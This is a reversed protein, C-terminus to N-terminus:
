SCSVQQNGCLRIAGGADIRLGPCRLDAPCSTTGSVNVNISVATGFPTPRGEAGFTFQTSPASTNGPLVSTRLTQPTAPTSFDEVTVTSGNSVVVRVQTNRKIAESQAILAETYLLNGAERLRSNTVLDGMFPAAASGLIALVVMAVLAEILTFGRQSPRPTLCRM